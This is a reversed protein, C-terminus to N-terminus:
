RAVGEARSGAPPGTTETATDVETAPAQAPYASATPDAPIIGTPEGPPHSPWVLEPEETATTGDRVYVRTFSGHDGDEYELYGTFTRVTGDDARAFDHVIRELASYLARGGDGEDDGGPIIATARPGDPHDRDVEFARDGISIEDAWETYCPLNTLPRIDAAAMATPGFTGEGDPAPEQTWDDAAARAKLETYPIPPDIAIVASSAFYIM